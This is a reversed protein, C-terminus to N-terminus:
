KKKIKKKKIKTKIFVLIAFTALMFILLLKSLYNNEKIPEDTLKNEDLFDPFITKNFDSVIIQTEKFKINTLLPREFLSIKNLDIERLIYYEINQDAFVNFFFRL